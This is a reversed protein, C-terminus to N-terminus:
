YPRRYRRGFNGVPMEDLPQKRIFIHNPIKLVNYPQVGDPVKTVEEWIDNSQPASYGRKTPSGKEKANSILMDFSELHKTKVM